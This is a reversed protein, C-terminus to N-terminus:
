NASVYQCVLDIKYYLYDNTKDEKLEMLQNYIIENFTSNCNVHIRSTEAMTKLMRILFDCLTNKIDSTVETLQMNCLIYYKELIDYYYLSHESGTKDIFKIVLYSYGYEDEYPIYRDLDFIPDNGVFTGDDFRIENEDVYVIKIVQKNELDYIKKNEMCQMDEYDLCNM